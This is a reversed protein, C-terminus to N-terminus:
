FLYKYRMSTNGLVNQQKLESRCQQLTPTEFLDVNERIEILIREQDDISKMEGKIQTM